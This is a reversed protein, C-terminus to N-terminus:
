FISSARCKKSCYILDEREATHLWIEDDRKLAKNCGDCRYDYTSTDMCCSLFLGMIEKRHNIKLSM